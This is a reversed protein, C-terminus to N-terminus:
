GRVAQKEAEAFGRTLRAIGKYFDREAYKYVDATFLGIWNEIHDRFFAAAERQQEEAERESEAEAQQKLLEAMYNFILGVHDEMIRFMEENMKFGKAAYVAHLQMQVSGGFASDSGTYVSEYPFAAKGTPDGAALFTKAYDAALDELLAETEEETKGDFGSLTDRLMQYGASLDQQWGEGTEPIEPFSFARMAKLMEGDIENIYVSSLFRYMMERSKLLELNKESM